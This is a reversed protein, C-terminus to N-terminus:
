YTTGSITNNINDKEKDEGKKMEEEIAKVQEDMLRNYEDETVCYFDEFTVSIPAYMITSATFSKVDEGNWNTIYHGETCTVKNFNYQENYEVKIHGNM